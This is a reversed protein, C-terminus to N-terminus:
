NTNIVAVTSASGGLIDKANYYNLQDWLEARPSHRGWSFCASCKFFANNCNEGEM